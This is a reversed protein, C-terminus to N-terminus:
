EAFVTAADGVGQRQGAFEIGALAVAEIRQAFPQHHRISVPRQVTGQEIGFQQGLDEQRHSAALARDLDLRRELGVAALGAVTIIPDPRRGAQDNALRGRGLALGM